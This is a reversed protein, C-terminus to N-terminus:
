YNMKLSHYNNYPAAASFSCQGSHKKLFNELVEQAFVPTAALGIVIMMFGLLKGM